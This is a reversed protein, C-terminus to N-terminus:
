PIGISNECPRTEEKRRDAPLAQVAEDGEFKVSLLNAVFPAADAPFLSEIKQYREADPEGPVFRCALQLQRIVPYLVSNTHYPSCQYSLRYCEGKGIGLSLARLLRSKGIGAEGSLLVVQGEGDRVARWREALLALEHDRGVLGSDGIKLEEAALPDVQLAENIARWVPVAHDFGKLHHSGKDELLFAQGVLRRTRGDLVVEGSSAIGQLRAALNPTDGVVAEEQAAGEGILDGVVVEGTAIGIRVSLPENDVVVVDSLADLISIGSRVARAADDEHAQPYGFYAMVGDGMFKAVHGDFRRIGNAAVNQYALVVERMDEPDLRRSRETSGVLDCFMITLQRREAQQRAERPAEEGPVKPAPPITAASSATGARLIALADLLRRRHGVSGVGIEKLDDSTLKPLLDLSVDNEAFADAYQGLALNELWEKVLDTM